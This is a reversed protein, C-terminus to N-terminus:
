LRVTLVRLQAAHSVGLPSLLRLAAGGQHRLLPSWTSTHVSCVPNQTVRWAWAQSTWVARPERRLWLIPSQVTARFDFHCVLERTFSTEASGERRPCSFAEASSPPSECGAKQLLHGPRHWSNLVIKRPGRGPGKGGGDGGAGVWRPRRGPGGEPHAHGGLHGTGERGGPRGDGKRLCGRPGRPGWLGPAGDKIRLSM